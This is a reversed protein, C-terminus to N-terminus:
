SARRPAAIIGVNVKDGRSQGMTLEENPPLLCCRLNSVELIYGRRITFTKRRAFSSIYCAADTDM